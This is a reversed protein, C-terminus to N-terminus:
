SATSPLSWQLMAAEGLFSILIIIHLACLTKKFFFFFMIQKFFFIKKKLNKEFVLQARYNLKYAISCQPALTFSKFPGTWCCLLLM